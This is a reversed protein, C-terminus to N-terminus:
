RDARALSVIQAASQNAAKAANTLPDGLTLRGALFGAFEDGAGTTDVAIVTEGPIQTVTGSEAVFAGHPGSTLVASRSVTLLANALEHPPRSTDAEPELIAHAESNNVILPDALALLDAPLETVPSPNLIFRSDHHRSWNAAAIVASLPLECQTLVVDPRVAGLSRTVLDADVALNSLPVVTISNEADPTVTIIARGSPGDAHELYSIDVNHSALERTIQEGVPDAGVKGIFITNAVRAAATAQNAGKGGIAESYSKGLVTEGAAPRRAAVVVIDLNASGVVALVGSM